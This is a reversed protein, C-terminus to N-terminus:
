KATSLLVKQILANQWHKIILYTDVTCCYVTMFQMYM